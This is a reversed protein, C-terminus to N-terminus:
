LWSICFEQGEGAFPFAYHVREYSVMGVRALEIRGGLASQKFTLVYVVYSVNTSLVECTRNWMTRVSGRLYASHNDANQPDHFHSKPCSVIKGVSTLFLEQIYICAAM